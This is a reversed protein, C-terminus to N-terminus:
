LLHDIEDLTYVKIGNKILLEALLGQGAIKKNTFSGDYIQHVGCSPSGDKLVAIKIDLYQCLMLGNKAGLLFKDSVDKEKQNIIKDNIRESPIRPISLGGQVEACFPILEYKDLLQQYRTDLNNKGNYKCNEGVLCASILIKEM